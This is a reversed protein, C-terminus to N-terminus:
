RSETFYLSGIHDEAIEIELKAAQCKESGPGRPAEYGWKQTHLVRLALWPAIRSRSPPTGCPRTATNACWNWRIEQCKESGDPVWYCSLRKVRRCSIKLNEAAKSDAPPSHRRRSPSPKSPAKMTLGLAEASASSPSSGSGSIVGKYTYTPTQKTLRPGKLIYPTMAFKCLSVWPRNSHQRCSDIFNSFLMSGDNRDM